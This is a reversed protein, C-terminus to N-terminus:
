KDVRPAEPRAVTIFYPLEPGDAAASTGGTTGDAKQWPWFGAKHFCAYGAVLCLVALAYVSPLQAEIAKAWNALVVGCTNNLAHAVAGPWLSGTRWFLYGFWLGMLIRSLGGAVELHAVSFFVSAAVLGVTPGWKRIAASQLAGRYLFEETFAPFIAIALWIGLFALPTSATLPEILGTEMHFPLAKTIAIQLAAFVVYFPVAFLAAGALIWGSVRKFPPLAGPAGDKPWYCAIVAPALVALLSIATSLWPINIQGKPSKFAYFVLSLVVMLTFSIGYLAAARRMSMAPAAAEPSVSRNLDLTM